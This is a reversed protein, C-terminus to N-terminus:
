EVTLGGGERKGGGGKWGKGGGTGKDKEGSVSVVHEPGDVAFSGDGHSCGGGQRWGGELGM